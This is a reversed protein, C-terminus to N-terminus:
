RTPWEEEEEKCDKEETRRGAEGRTQMPTGLMERQCLGAERPPTTTIRRHTREYVSQLRRRRRGMHTGHQAETSAHQHWRAGFGVRGLVSPNPNPNPNPNRGMLASPSSARIFVLSSTYTIFTRYSLFHLTIYVCILNRQVISKTRSDDSRRRGRCRRSLANCVATTSLSVM